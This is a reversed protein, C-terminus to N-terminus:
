QKEGKMRELIWRACRASANGDEVIGQEQKFREWSHAYAQEDFGRILSVLADNDRAMPFPLSDLEFYFNRDQRYAELDTAFQVCPRGQLAYDFMSSSYDTILLDAAVLLEQMDAYATADIIGEGDYAFLGGSKGAVNPHLRILATWKGGFRDECAQLVAGADLGYCGTSHDARFTPAYLLLRRDQPLAFFDHVKRSIEAGGTFFIDNRPTGYMAVEGDYWFSNQYIRRMFESGSVMLDTMQGDRRSTVAYEPPLVSQADKEIRKLAFGHWTQLYYQGRRKRRAFRRCNDVWFGATAGEYFRRLSNMPVPRIGHPLTKAEQEDKVIWLLKLPEGSRLLEQAIAKPSDSYGRGYYSSFLVKRRDVPVLGCLRWVAESVFDRLGM